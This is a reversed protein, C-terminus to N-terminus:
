FKGKGQGKIFIRLLLCAGRGGQKNGSCEMAKAIHFSCNTWSGANPGRWAKTMLAANSRVGQLHKTWSSSCM